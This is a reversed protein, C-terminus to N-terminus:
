AQAQVFIIPKSSHRRTYILLLIFSCSSPDLIPFPFRLVPHFNPDKVWVIVPLLVPMPMM